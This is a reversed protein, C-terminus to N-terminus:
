ASATPLLAKVTTGAGLSSQIEAYGGVALARERIGSLGSSTTTSLSEPADMGVGKDQICLTLAEGDSVVSVSAGNTGSHRAVNTLAEQIIRYAATEVTPAYRQDIGRHDFAIKVNARDTFRKFLADLAPRLGLDDLAAPRLDLTLSRVREMLQDVTQTAARLSEPAAAEIQLKLGTLDQGIEDHLERAIHRSQEEKSDVLRWILQQRTYGWEKQETIDQFAEVVYQFHGSDNSVATQIGKAWFTTGDKKLWQREYTVLDVEGRILRQFFKENRRPVEPPHFSGSRKLHLEDRSRGFIAQTAPNTEIIQANEDKLMLGIPALQFLVRFREESAELAEQAAKRETVDEFVQISYLFNGDADSVTSQTGQTWILDGNPRAYHGEFDLGDLEGSVLKQYRHNTDPRFGPAWYDRIPTGKLEDNSRGLLAQMAPNTTIILNNADKLAMGIPSSDFVVRFVEESDRLAIASEEDANLDRMVACWATAGQYQVKSYITEILRHTGDPLSLRSQWRPWEDLASDHDELRERDGPRMRSFLRAALADEASEYAFMRVFAQNVFLRKGNAFISVADQIGAIVGVFEANDAAKTESAALQDELEAIRARLAAQDTQNKQGTSM